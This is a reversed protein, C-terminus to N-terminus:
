RRRSSDSSLTLRSVKSVFTENTGGALGIIVGQNGWGPIYALVGDARETFGAGDQLGGETINRYVGEPPSASSVLTEVEDNNYGPHTFELMSKLYVRAVQNSWGETTHLDLHGGFYYSRGLDPISLGAGEAARQVPEGASASHNGASTKPDGHETWRGSAVDYEWLALAVPDERPTDSFQGGYVYLANQSHWLAGMAVAPPGSPQPLGKLAPSSIDWDRTLDLSLLNNNWTDSDQSSRTSARGGYIYITDKIRASQHAWRMCVDTPSDARPILGANAQAAQRGSSLWAPFLVAVLLTM